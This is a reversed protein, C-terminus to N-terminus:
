ELIADFAQAQEKVSALTVEVEDIDIKLRELIKQQVDNIAVDDKGEILVNALLAAAQLTTPLIEDSDDEQKAIASQIDDPFKWFGALGAGVQRFDFGLQNQQTLSRQGGSAIAAIVPKMEEVLLTHMLLEGINHLMGCTFATEPNIGKGRALFKAIGATLFSHKWFRNRDFGPIDAFAGAVGSAVVLTRLANFGLLVVADDVSSVQRPMGFRASNALRLVKATIVQDMAIKEAIEDINIDDNNFSEILEQVLKPIQPLQHAQEFLQEVKM